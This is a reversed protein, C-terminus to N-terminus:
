NLQWQDLNLYTIGKTSVSTGVSNIQLIYTYSVIAIFSLRVSGTVPM